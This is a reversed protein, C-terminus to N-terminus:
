RSALMYTYYQVASTKQLSPTTHYVCYIIDHISELRDADICMSYKYAYLTYHVRVIIEVKGSICRSSSARGIM